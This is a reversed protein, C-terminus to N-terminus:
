KERFDGLRNWKPPWFLLKFLGIKGVCETNSKLKNWEDQFIMHISHEFNRVLYAEDEVMKLPFRAVPDM